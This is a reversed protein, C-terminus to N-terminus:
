CIPILLMRDPEPEDTLQNAKEIAEVTSGTAKALEWLSGNGMRRLILSPRTPDPEQKEGMQLGSIMPMEEGSVTLCKIEVEPGNPRLYAYIHSGEAAPLSWEQTWHETEAALQDEHDYYLTQTKGTVQGQLMDGQRFMTPHDVCIHTNVIQRADPVQSMPVDLIRETQDLMMPLKLTQRTATIKQWPSYADQTLTIIQQDFIVYQCILGCSMWIGDERIEPELSSVAMMVSVIAEKDYDMDLDVYQAIPLEAIHTCIRGDSNMYVLHVQCEGRFVVRSGVVNQETIQPSLHCSLIKYPIGHPTSLQEELTFQKEGAERPLVTPYTKQLLCVGEPLEPPSYLNKEVPELAETLLGVSARVMIKGASLMRADVSRLCADARIVGERQSDQLTWKGQFPLWAEVTRPESGDEPAYLVWVTVGGGVSVTDNRWEKSRLVCQGWACIISGIDPMGESLRVEQTQELNQVDWLQRELYRCASQNWQIEM